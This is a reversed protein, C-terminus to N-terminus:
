KKYREAQFVQRNVIVHRMTFYFMGNEVMEGDWDQRRPRQSPKFNLAKTTPVPVIKSSSSEVSWRLHHTRTVSFVSEYYSTKSHILKHAAEILYEPQVFPSTAQVLGIADIESIITISQM